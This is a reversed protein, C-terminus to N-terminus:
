GVATLTVHSKTSTVIKYSMAKSNQFNCEWGWYDNENVETDM